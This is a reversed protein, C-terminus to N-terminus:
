RFKDRGDTYFPIMKNLLIKTSQLRFRTSVDFWFYKVIIETMKSQECILIAENTEKLCLLCVM